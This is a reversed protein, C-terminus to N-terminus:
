LKRRHKLTDDQNQHEFSIIINQQGAIVSTININTINDLIYDKILQETPNLVREFKM